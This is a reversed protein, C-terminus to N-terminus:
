FRSWGAGRQAAKAWGRVRQTEAREGEIGLFRDQPAAVLADMEGVGLQRQQLHQGLLGAQRDTTLIQPPAAPDAAGIPRDVGLDGAQSALQLGIGLTGVM